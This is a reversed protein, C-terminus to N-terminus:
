MDQRAYHATNRENDGLAFMHRGAYAKTPWHGKQLAQMAVDVLM